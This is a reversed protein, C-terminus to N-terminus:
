KKQPSISAGTEVTELAPNVSQFLATHTRSKRSMSALISASSNPLEALLQKLEYGQQKKLALFLATPLVDTALLKVGYQQSFQDLTAQPHDTIEALFAKPEQEFANVLDALICEYRVAEVYNNLAHKM